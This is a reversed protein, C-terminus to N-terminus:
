LKLRPFLILFLATDVYLGMFIPFFIFFLFASFPPNVLLFKTWMTQIQIKTVKRREFNTNIVIIQMFAFNDWYCTEVDMTLRERDKHRSDFEIGYRVVDYRSTACFSSECRSEFISWIGNWFCVSKTVVFSFCMQCRRCQYAVSTLYTHFVKRQSRVRVRVRM